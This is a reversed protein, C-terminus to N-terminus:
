FSMNANQRMGERTQRSGCVFWATGPVKCGKEDQADGRLLRRKAFTIWVPDLYRNGYMQMELGIRRDSMKLQNKDEQSLVEHSCADKQM